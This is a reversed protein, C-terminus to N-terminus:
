EREHAAFVQRPQIESHRRLARDLLRDHGYVDPYFYVREDRVIVTSYAILVPLPSKLRLTSPEGQDMAAQLREETWDPQDQLVFRALALPAEVRICGHSFDRQERKFLQPTPTDHLYIQESNPFFEIKGLPNLPGPRQRLYWRGALVAELHAPALTTM